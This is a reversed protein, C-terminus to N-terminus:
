SKHEPATVREESGQGSVGSEQKERPTGLLAIALAFFGIAWGSLVDSPWHVGLYVRSYGILPPLAALLTSLVERVGAGWLGRHRLFPSSALVIWLYFFTFLSEAAHGSPFSAGAPTILFPVPPRSRDVLWKLLEVTVSTMAWGTVLWIAIEQSRRWALLVAFLGVVPALTWNSGLYSIFKWFRVSSANTGGYIAVLLAPDLNARALIVAGFLLGLCAAFLFREPLLAPTQPVASPSPSSM